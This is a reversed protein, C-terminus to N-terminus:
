EDCEMKKFLSCTKNQNCYPCSTSYTNRGGIDVVWANPEHIMQITGEAKTRHNRQGVGQGNYGFAVFVREMTRSKNGFVREM